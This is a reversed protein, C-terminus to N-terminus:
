KLIVATGLGIVAGGLIKAITSTNRIKKNLAKNTKLGLDILTDKNLIQKDLNGIISKQTANQEDMKTILVSDTTVVRNLQEIEVTAVALLKSDREGAEIKRAGVILKNNAIGTTSDSPVSLDLSHYYQQLGTSSLQGVSAIRSDYYKVITPRTNIINRLSDREKRSESKLNDIFVAQSIQQSDM